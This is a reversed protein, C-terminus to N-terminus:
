QYMTFDGIKRAYRNLTEKIEDTLIYRENSPTFMLAHDRIGTQRITTAEQLKKKLLLYNQAIRITAMRIDSYADSSASYGANYVIKVNNYGEIPVNSSVFIIKGTEYNKVFIYDGATLASVETLATWSPIVSPDNSNVSVSTVSNSPSERLYFERDFDLYEGNDGNSGRGNHYETVERSEFTEVNCYRNVVQTSTDIVFSLFDNWEAESMEDGNIKFDSTTFGTFALVDNIDCYAM